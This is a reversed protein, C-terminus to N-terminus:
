KHFMKTPSLKPNTQTIMKPLVATGGKPNVVMALEAFSDWEIYGQNDRDFYAFLSLSQIDDFQINVTELCERFENEDLVGDRNRDFGEFLKRTRITQEAYSMIRESLKAQLMHLLTEQTQNREKALLQVANAYREEIDMHKAFNRFNSRSENGGSRLINPSTAGYNHFPSKSGPSLSGTSPLRGTKRLNDYKVIPSGCINKSDPIFGSYGGILIIM